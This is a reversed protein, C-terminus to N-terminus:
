KGRACVGRLPHFLVVKCARVVVDSLDCIWPRCGVVLVVCGAAGSGLVGVVPFM